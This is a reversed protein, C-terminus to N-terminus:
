LVKMLLVINLALSAAFVLPGIICFIWVNVTAYTTGLKEALWELLVVCANFLFITIQRHQLYREIEQKLSREDKTM